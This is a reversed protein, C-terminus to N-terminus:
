IALAQAVAKRIDLLSFPKDVVDVVKTM